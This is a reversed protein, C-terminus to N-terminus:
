RLLGKTWGVPITENAFIFKNNYGNNICIKGTTTGKRNQKSWHTQSYDNTKGAYWGEPIDDVILIKKNINGNTIFQKKLIKRLHQQITNFETVRISQTPIVDVGTFYNKREGTLINIYTHKNKRSPPSFPWEEYYGVPLKVDKPFQIYEKSNTTIFTHTKSKVIQGGASFNINLYQSKDIISRLYRDEAAVAEKYTSFLTIEEVLFNEGQELLIKIVKSSTFYRILIDQEPPQKSQRSGIYWKNINPAYLKYLYSYM